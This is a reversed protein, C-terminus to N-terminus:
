QQTLSNLKMNNTEFNGSCYNQMKNIANASGRLSYNIESLVAVEDGANISQLVLTMEMGAKLASIEDTTLTDNRIIMNNNSTQVLNVPYEKGNAKLTIFFRENSNSETFSVARWLLNDVTFSMSLEESPATCSLSFESSKTSDIVTSTMQLVGRESLDQKVNWKSDVPNNNKNNASIFTFNASCVTDRLSNVAINGSPLLDLTIVCKESIEPFDADCEYSECFFKYTSNNVRSHWNEPGFTVYLYPHRAEISVTANDHSNNTYLGEYKTLDMAYTNISFFTLLLLQSFLKM